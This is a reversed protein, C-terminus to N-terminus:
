FALGALSPGPPMIKRKGGDSKARPNDFISFLGDAMIDERTVRPSPKRERLLEATLEIYVGAATSSLL